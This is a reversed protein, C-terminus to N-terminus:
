PFTRSPHLDVESAGMALRHQRGRSPDTQSRPAVELQQRSSPSGVEPAPLQQSPPVPIEVDCSVDVHVGVQAGGDIRQKHAYVSCAEIFLKTAAHIRPVAAM